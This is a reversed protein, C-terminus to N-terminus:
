GDRKKTILLYEVEKRNKIQSIIKEFVKTDGCKNLISEIDELKIKNESSHSKANYTNNYSVM